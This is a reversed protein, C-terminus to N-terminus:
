LFEKIPVIFPNLLQTLVLLVEPVEFCLQFILTPVDMVLPHLDFGLNLFSLRIRPHLVLILQILKGLKKFRFLVSNFSIFFEFDNNPFGVLLDNIINM